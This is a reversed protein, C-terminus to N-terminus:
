FSPSPLTIYGLDILQRMYRYFLTLLLTRIHSGDVDADTNHCCIGGMGCIFNEDDEVSFDYVM